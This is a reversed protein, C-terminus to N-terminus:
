PRNPRVQLHPGCAASFPDVLFTGAIGSVLITGNRNVHASRFEEEPLNNLRRWSQGSDRSVYVGTLSTVIERNPRLPDVDISYARINPGVEDETRHLLFKADTVRRVVGPGSPNYIGWCAALHLGGVVSMGHIASDAGVVEVRSWKRTHLNLAYVQDGTGLYLLSPNEKKPDDFQMSLLDMETPPRPIPRDEVWSGNRDKRYSFIKPDLDFFGYGVILHKGDSTMGVVNARLPDGPRKAIRVKPPSSPVRPGIIPKVLPQSPDPRPIVQFAGRQTTVVFYRAGPAVSLGNRLGEGLKADFYRSDLRAVETWTAGGDTSKSVYMARQQLPVADSLDATLAWVSDPDHPDRDTAFTEIFDSAFQHSGPLDTVRHVGCNDLDRKPDNAPQGWALLPVALFLFFGRV